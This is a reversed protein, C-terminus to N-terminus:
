MWLFILTMVLYVIILGLIVALMPLFMMKVAGWYTAWVEKFSASKQGIGRRHLNMGPQVGSMDALTRGDDVYIVKEKKKKGM